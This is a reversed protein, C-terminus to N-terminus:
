KGVFSEYDEGDLAMLLPELKSASFFCTYAVPFALLTCMNGRAPYTICINIM